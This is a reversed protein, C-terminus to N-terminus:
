RFSVPWRMAGHLVRLVTLMTEDVRYALVYPTGPVVWERTNPVRGLRGMAPQDRLRGVAERIQRAVRSAARPNDQAIYARLAQLDAIADEQWRLSLPM